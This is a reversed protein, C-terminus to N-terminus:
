RGGKANNVTAESLLLGGIVGDRVTRGHALVEIRKADVVASGVTTFHSRWGLGMAGTVVRGTNIGVGMSARHSRIGPRGCRESYQEAIKDSAAQMEIGARVASAASACQEGKDDGDFIGFVALM